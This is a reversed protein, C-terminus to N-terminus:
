LLPEQFSTEDERILVFRAYWGGCRIQATKRDGLFMEEKPFYDKIEVPQARKNQRIYDAQRRRLFAAFQQIWTATVTYYLYPRAVDLLYADVKKLDSMTYAIEEFFYKKHDM